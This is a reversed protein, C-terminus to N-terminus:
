NREGRKKLFGKWIIGLFLSIIGLIFSLVGIFVTADYWFKMPYIRILTDSYKFKWSYPDFVAIHFIEFAKKYDVFTLASLFILFITNFIGSYI